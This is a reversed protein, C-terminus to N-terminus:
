VSLPIYDTPNIGFTGAPLVHKIEIGGKTEIPQQMLDIIKTAPYPKKEPDLVLAVRPKLRRMRNVSVVVGISGTSMEVLSGIPYIGMCQIFQEVMTNHFDKHRWEYMKRLSDHASMGNHYTRDSTIADYCDVIAGIQGFLGIQEGKLGFAYGGGNYREHHSRAVEISAPPIGKTKELIAVGHPVHSKMLEFEEDTLGGPKNLIENPVKMKGVDHLLAGLGLINLEEISFELHRGFALALICVRLSHLATYEDKNKLQTLCGLADPNRIISQVMDAVVKKASATNISRGMRVDDMINYITHKTESEIGRAEALEQELTTRDPYRLVRKQGVAFKNLIEFSLKKDQDDAEAAVNVQPLAEPKPKPKIDYGVETDIYVYKCHRKLEELEEDTKIEFGQFLFPTELWPRDLELVYVGIRLDNVGAKKKM